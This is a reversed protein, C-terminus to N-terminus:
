SRALRRAIQPRLAPLQQLDARYKWIVVLSNGAWITLLAPDANSLLLYVLLSFSTLVVAWGSVTVVSFWVGLLIGGITPVEWLTVATWVGASVAVAKGGRFRLFPSFAHGYIPALAVPVLWWGTIGFVWRALAVPIAGKLADLAFALAAWKKSGAKIVNTMGPNGDGYQRIDAGLAWRGIWYSFMLSGSFFGIVSWLLTTVVTQDM